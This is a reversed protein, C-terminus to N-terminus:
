HAYLLMECQSIKTEEGEFQLTDVDGKLWVTNLSAM